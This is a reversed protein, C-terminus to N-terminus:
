ILTPHVQVHFFINIKLVNLHKLIPGIESPKFICPYEYPNELTKKPGDYHAKLGLIKFAELFGVYILVEHYYSFSKIRLRLFLSFM